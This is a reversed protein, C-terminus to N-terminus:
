TLAETQSISRELIADFRRWPAADHIDFVAERADILEHDIGRATLRDILLKEEVRIRSVLVGIRM